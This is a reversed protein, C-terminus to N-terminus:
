DRFGALAILRGPNVGDRRYSYFLQEHCQTCLNLNKINESKVGAETLEHMNARRLDIRKSARLKASGPDVVYALEIFQGASPIASQFQELVAAGVEYCCTGVSPGLAAILDSPRCGFRRQLELVVKRTIRLVTGRWGAHISASVKTVPDIILVAQCDATKISPYYGTKDSIIADGTYPGETDPELIVVDSGHVQDTVVIRSQDIQLIESLIEYDNPDEADTSMLDMRLSFIMVAKPHDDLIVEYFHDQRRFGEM